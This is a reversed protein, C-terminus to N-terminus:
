MWRLPGAQLTRDPVLHIATDSLAVVRLAQLSRGLIESGRPKSVTPWQVQFQPQFSDYNIYPLKDFNPM